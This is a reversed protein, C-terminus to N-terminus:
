IQAGNTSPQPQEVAHDLTAAAFEQMRNLYRQKMVEWRIPAYERRAQAVFDAHLNQNRYLRLIQKALDAANNPEFYAL